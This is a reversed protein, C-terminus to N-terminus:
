KYENNGMFITDGKKVTYLFMNDPNSGSQSPIILSQGEKLSYADVNNIDALETVSVGFQNSIGYLTDGKKVIYVDNLYIV